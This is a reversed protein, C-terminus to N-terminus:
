IKIRVDRPGVARKKKEDRVPLPGNFRLCQFRQALVKQNFPVHFKNGTCKVSKSNKKSSSSIRVNQFLGQNTLGTLHVHKQKKEVPKTLCM